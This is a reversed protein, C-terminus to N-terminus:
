LVIHTTDKITAAMEDDGGEKLIEGVMTKWETKKDDHKSFPLSLM